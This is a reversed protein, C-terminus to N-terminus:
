KKWSERESEGRIIFRISITTNPQNKKIPNKKHVEKAASPVMSFLWRWCMSICVFLFLVRMVFSHQLFIFLKLQIHANFNRCYLSVDFHVFDFVHLCWTMSSYPSYLSPVYGVNLLLIEPTIILLLLLLLFSFLSSALCFLWCFLVSFGLCCCCCCCCCYCRFFLLFKELNFLRFCRYQTTIWAFAFLSITLDSQM